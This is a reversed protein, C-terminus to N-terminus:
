AARKEKRTSAQENEVKNMATKIDKGVATWIQSLSQETTKQVLRRYSKSSPAVDLVSGAGRLVNKLTQTM